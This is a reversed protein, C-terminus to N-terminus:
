GRAAFRTLGAPTQAGTFLAGMEGANRALDFAELVRRRGQRSLRQRLEADDLVKGIAAALGSRDGPEVVLGSVGDEVLEPIGSVRTSVVPVGAGMAEMLAVPIGDQDLGAIVCALVFLDAEALQGPIEEHTKAGAFRVNGELGLRRSQAELSARLPGDGVLTL